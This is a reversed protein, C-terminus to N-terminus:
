GRDSVTAMHFNLAASFPKKACRPTHRPVCVCWRRSRALRIAEPVLHLVSVLLLLRATLQEAKGGCSLPNASAVSARSAVATKTDAAALKTINFINLASCCDPMRSCTHRFSELYIKFSRKCLHPKTSVHGTFNLWPRNVHLFHAALADM